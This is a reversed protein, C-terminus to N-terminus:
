MNNFWPINISRPVFTDLVIEDSSIDPGGVTPFSFALNFRASKDSKVKFVFHDAEGSRISHTFSGQYLYDKSKGAELEIDYKETPPLSAGQNDEPYISIAFKVVHEKHKESFYQFSGTLIGWGQYESEIEPFFDFFTSVPIFTKDSFAELEKTFERGDISINKLSEPRYFDVGFRDPGGGIMRFRIVPNLVEGWGENYIYVGSPIRKFMLVPNIDVISSSVRIVAEKLVITQKSNNVIKVSLQPFKCEFTNWIASANVTGGKFLDLLYPMEPKIWLKGDIRDYSYKLNYYDITHNRVGEANKISNEEYLTVDAIPTSLDSEETSPSHVSLYFIPIALLAFIAALSSFIATMVKELNGWVGRIWFVALVILCTLALGIFVFRLWGFIRRWKHTESPKGTQQPAM